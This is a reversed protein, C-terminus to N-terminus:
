AGEFISRRSNGDQWKRGLAPNMEIPGTRGSTFRVDPYFTSTIMIEAAPVRSLRPVRALAANLDFMEMVKVLFEGLGRGKHHLVRIDYKSVGYEWFQMSFSIQWEITEGTDFDPTFLMYTFAIDGHPLTVGYSGMPQLSFGKKRLFSNARTQFKAIAMVYNMM